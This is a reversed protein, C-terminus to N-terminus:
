ESEKDRLGAWREARELRGRLAAVAAARRHPLPDGEELALLKRAAKAPRASGEIAQLLARCEPGKVSEAMEVSLEYYLELLLHLDRPMTAIRPLCQELALRIAQTHLPSTEAAQKICPTIRQPRLAGHNFLTVIARGLMPGDMKGAEITDILLDTALHRDGIDSMQLDLAIMLAGVPGLPVGPEMALKRITGIYAGGSGTREIRESSWWIERAYGPRPRLFLRVKNWFGPDGYLTEALMSRYPAEYPKNRSRRKVGYLRDLVWIVFVGGWYLTFVFVAVPLFTLILALGGIFSGTDRLNRKRVAASLKRRGAPPCSRVAPIEGQSSRLEGLVTDLGFWGVVNPPLEAVRDKLEAIEKSDPEHQITGTVEGLWDAARIRTSPAMVALRQEVANRMEVGDPDGSRELLNLASEQIETDTHELLTAALLVARATNASDQKALDSLIRLIQKANAKTTTFLAREIQDLFLGPDLKGAKLLVKLSGIAMSSATSFPSAVINLYVETRAAREDLTPEMYDHFRAFWGTQEQDLDRALADLGADLLRARDLDGLASLQRLAYAWGRPADFKGATRPLRMESTGETEFLRWVLDDLLERDALLGDLVAYESPTMALGGIMGLVYNPSEPPACPVERVLRRVLPRHLASRDLLWNCWSELWPPKRDLLIEACADTETRRGSPIGRNGMRKLESLTATALLAPATTEPRGWGEDLLVPNVRLLDDNGILDRAVDMIGTALARRRGEEMGRFYSAVEGPDRGKRILTELAAPFGNRSEEAAAAM